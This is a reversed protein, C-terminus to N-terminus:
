RVVGVGIGGDLRCGLEVRVGGYMGKVTIQISIHINGWLWWRVWVRVWM